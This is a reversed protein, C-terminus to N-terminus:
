EEGSPGVEVEFYQAVLLLQDEKPKCLDPCVFDSLIREM